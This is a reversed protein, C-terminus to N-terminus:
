DRDRQRGGIAGAVSAIFAGILLSIFGYLTVKVWSKRVEEAAAVAADRATQTDALVTNVRGSAEAPSLGTRAAVLQALYAKDAPSVAGNEFGNALIRVTEPTVDPLQAPVPLGNDAPRYLRDAAYMLGAEPAAAAVQAGKDIAASGIGTVLAATLLTAVCWALFGQATDRFFVEDADVGAWRQRLRGALYGGMASSLWQMVILWIAIGATLTIATDRPADWVSVSSLGLGQGLMLLILSLAVASVAGALIAPWSVGNGTTHTLPESNYPFDHPVVDPADPLVTKM